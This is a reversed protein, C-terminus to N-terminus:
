LGGGQWFLEIAFATLFVIALICKHRRVSREFRRYGEPSRELEEIFDIRRAISGHRWSHRQIAIGNLIAVNELATTFTRIGVPCVRKSMKGARSVSTPEGATEGDDEYGIEAHPPCDGMDCSVVKTGYVDAQREFARSLGGFVRWFYIGVFVVLLTVEIVEITTQSTSEAIWSDRAVASAGLTLLDAALALVAVSGLFFLGFFLQHKHAVHGIEHGFVAATERESLTEILLDTLMVYRFQPLVGSVCANVMSHGTNWVLIDTFRFGARRAAQELRRRARGPPLSEMPWAIRVFLPAALIVFTGVTAVELSEAWPNKDWGPWFRELLDGRILYALLVPLILGFSQRTRLWLFRGLPPKEMKISRASLVGDAIYVGCWLCYQILLYPLLIVLEDVLVWGALGWNGRVIRSWGVWHIIWGYVVLGTVALFRSGMLYRSRNRASVQGVGGAGAAVWYGLGLSLIGVVAIGGVTEALRLGIDSLPGSPEGRDIGFALIFALLLSVPIM